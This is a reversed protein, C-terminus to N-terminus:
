GALLFPPPFHFDWSPSPVSHRRIGPTTTLRFVLELFRSLSVLNITVRHLPTPWILLRIGPRFFAVSHLPFLQIRPGFNSDFQYTSLFDLFHRPHYPIKRLLLGRHNGVPQCIPICCGRLKFVLSAQSAGM